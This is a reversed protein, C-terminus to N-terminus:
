PGERSTVPIVKVMKVVTIVYNLVASIVIAELLLLLLKPASRELKAAV